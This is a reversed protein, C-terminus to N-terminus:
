LGPHEKRAQDYCSKYAMGVRSDTAELINVRGGKGMLNTYDMINILLNRKTKTDNMIRDVDVGNARTAKIFIEYRNYNKSRKSAEKIWEEDRKRREEDINEQFEIDVLGQEYLDPADIESGLEDCLRTYVIADHNVLAEKRVEDLRLTRELYSEKVM